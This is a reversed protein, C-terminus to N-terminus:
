RGKPSPGQRNVGCVRMTQSEWTNATGSGEESRSTQFVLVWGGRGRRAGSGRSTLPHPPPGGVSAQCGSTGPPFRAVPHGHTLAAAGHHLGPAPPGRPDSHVHPSAPTPATGRCPWVHDSRHLWPSDPSAWPLPGGKPSVPPLFFCLSAKLLQLNPLPHCAVCVVPSCCINIIICKRYQQVHFM